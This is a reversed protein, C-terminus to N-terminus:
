PRLKPREAVCKKLLVKETGDETKEILRAKKNDMLWVLNDTQYVPGSPTVANYLIIQQDKNYRLALAEYDDSHKTVVEHGKDCKYYTFKEQDPDTYSACSVIILLWLYKM